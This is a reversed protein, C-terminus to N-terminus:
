FKILEQKDASVAAIFNGRLFAIKIGSINLFNLEVASYVHVVIHDRYLLMKAIRANDKVIPDAM